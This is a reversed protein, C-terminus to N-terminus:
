GTSPEDRLSSTRSPPAAADGDLFAAVDTLSLSDGDIEVRDM